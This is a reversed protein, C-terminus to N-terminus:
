SRAVMELLWEQMAPNGAVVGGRALRPPAGDLDTVVGGAERILVVGAAFDWPALTLEWFADLRGRAIDTLDLAASGARRVGSTARLVGPLLRLFRDMDAPTKFPFGTGILALRPDTIGSTTLRDPGLWAGGGHWAVTCHRTPVHLVVGAVLQGDIAAAISVSWAPYRHLFNTTGDLPDVVWVLGGPPVGDPSLEEGLVHADPEARLLDDRIREEATRDVRTVFDSPGKVDWQATAPPPVLGLWAAARCAARQALRALREADTSM